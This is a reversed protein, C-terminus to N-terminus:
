SYASLVHYTQTHARLGFTHLKLHMFVRATGGWCSCPIHIGQLILHVSM